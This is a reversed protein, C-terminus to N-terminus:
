RTIGNSFLLRNLREEMQHLAEEGHLDRTYVERWSINKWILDESIFLNDTEPCIKVVKSLPISDLIQDFRTKM